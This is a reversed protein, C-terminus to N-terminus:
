EPCWFIETFQCVRPVMFDRYILCMKAWPSHSNGQKFNRLWTDDILWLYSRVLSQDTLTCRLSRRRCPSTVRHTSFYNEGFRCVFALDPASQLYEKRSPHQFEVPISQYILVNKSSTFSRCYGFFFRVSIFSEVHYILYRRFLLLMSYKCLPM